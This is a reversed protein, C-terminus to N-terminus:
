VRRGHLVDCWRRNDTGTVDTVPPRDGSVSVHDDEVGDLRLAHEQCWGIRLIERSPDRGPQCGPCWPTSLDATEALLDSM